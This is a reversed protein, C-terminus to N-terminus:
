RKAGDGHICEHGDGRFSSSDGHCQDQQLILKAGQSVNSPLEATRVNLLCDQRREQLQRNDCLYDRNM